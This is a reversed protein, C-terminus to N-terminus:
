VHSDEEITKIVDYHEEFYAKSVPWAHDKAVIAFDGPNGRQTGSSTVFDVQTKIMFANHLVPKKQVSMYARANAHHIALPNNVFDFVEIPEESTNEEVVAERVIGAAEENRKKVAAILEARAAEHYVSVSMRPDNREKTLRAVLKDEFEFQGVEVHLDKGAFHEPLVFKELDTGSFITEPECGDECNLAYGNEDGVGVEEIVFPGDEGDTIFISPPEPDDFNGPGTVDAAVNISVVLGCSVSDQLFERATEWKM